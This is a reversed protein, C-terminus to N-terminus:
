IDEMRKLEVETVDRGCTRCIYSCEVDKIHEDCIYEGNDYMTVIDVTARQFSVEDCFPCVLQKNSM